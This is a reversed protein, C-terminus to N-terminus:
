LQFSASTVYFGDKQREDVMACLHLNDVIQSGLVTDNFSSYLWPAIYNNGTMKAIPRSVKMLTMHPVFEHYDRIDIGRSSLCTKLHHVLEFFEPPCDIVRGYIVRNFFTEVGKFTLKKDKPVISRLEPLAEKLCAVANEIQEPTELGMTCLTLHMAGRPIKCDKLKPENEVVQNQIEEATNRITEDTIRLAIFHNPRLKDRWYKDFQDDYEVDAEDSYRNNDTDDDFAAGGIAGGQPNAITVTIGDDSDSDTDSYDESEYFDSDHDNRSESHENEDARDINRVQVGDVRAIVDTITKKSGTSGFVNDLRCRKDWVIENKYKFYQIRHKPIALVTYDVSAIDEWSFANFYKEKLGDIRDLYGVLFQDQQLAPDWLIRKVVDIATKMPPKKGKETPDKVKNKSKKQQRKSPNDKGGDKKSKMRKGTLDINGEKLWKLATQVLGELTVMHINETTQKLFTELDYIEDEDLSESRIEIVPVISPYGEAIKFNFVIDLNEPHLKVIKVFKGTTDIVKCQGKFKSSLNELEDTVEQQDRSTEKVITENGQSAAM